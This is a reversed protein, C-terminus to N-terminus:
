AGGQSSSSPVSSAGRACPNLSGSPSPSAAAASPSLTGCSFTVRAGSTSSRRHSFRSRVIRILPSSHGRSECGSANIRRFAATSTATKRSHVENLMMRRRVASLISSLSVCVIELVWPGALVAQRRSGRGRGRSARSPAARSQSRRVALVAQAGLRRVVRHRRRGEEDRHRDEHDVLRHLHQEGDAELAVPQPRLVGLAHHREVADQVDEVVHRGRRRGSAMPPGAALVHVGADALRPIRRPGLALPSPSTRQDHVDPHKLAPAAIYSDNM